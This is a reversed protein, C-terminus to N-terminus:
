RIGPVQKIPKWDAEGEYWAMDDALLEGNSLMANAQAIPYPGFQQGNRIILVQQPVNAPVSTISPSPVGLAQPQPTAPAQPQPTATDTEIDTEEDEDSSMSKIGIWGFIILAWVLKGGIRDWFPIASDPSDLGYTTRVEAEISPSKFEYYRTGEGGPQSLVYKADWNWAPIWMIWAQKYIVCIAAHSGESTKFEDTDPLNQVLSIKEGGFSWIFAQTELTSLFLVGTAILLLYRKM